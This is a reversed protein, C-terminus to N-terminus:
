RGRLAAELLRLTEERTFRVEHAPEADRLTGWFSLCMVALGAGMTQYHEWEQDARQEKRIAAQQEALWTRDNSPFTSHAMMSDVLRATHQDLIPETM